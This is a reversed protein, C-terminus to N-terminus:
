GRGASALSRCRSRTVQVTPQPWRARGEVGRASGAAPAEATTAPPSVRTRPTRCTTSSGPSRTGGSWALSKQQSQLHCQPCLGASNLNNERRRVVSSTMNIQRGPRSQFSRGLLHVRPDGQPGRSERCTPRREQRGPSLPGPSVQGSLALHIPGRRGMAGGSAGVEPLALMTHGVTPDGQTHARTRGALPLGLRAPRPPCGPIHGRCQIEGPTEMLSSIYKGPAPLPGQTLLVPDM